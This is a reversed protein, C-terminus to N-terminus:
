KNIEGWKHFLLEDATGPPHTSKAMLKSNCKKLAKSCIRNTERYNNQTDHLAYAQLVVAESVVAHM